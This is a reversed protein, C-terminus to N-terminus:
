RESGRLVILVSDKLVGVADPHAVNQYWQLVGVGATPGNRMVGWLHAARTGPGGATHGTAFDIITGAFHENRKAVVGAANIHLGGLPIYRVDHGPPGSLMVRFGPAPSQGYVRVMALVYVTEDAALDFRLDADDVLPSPWCLNTVYQDASKVHLEIAGLGLGLSTLLGTLVITPPM